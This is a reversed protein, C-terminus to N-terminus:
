DITNYNIKFEFLDKPESAQQLADVKNIETMWRRINYGYDVKQLPNMNITNGVNESKLQGLEDYTNQALLEKTGAVSGVSVQHTHTELRDQATYAFEENITLLVDNNTRKHKTITQTTKGSFALKTNVSTFVGLYNNTYTYMPRAKNDYYITSTEGAIGTSTLVRTWPGTALSKPNTLFGTPITAADPFNYDDYYNVTLV